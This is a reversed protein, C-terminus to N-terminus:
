GPLPEWGARAARRALTRNVALPVLPSLLLWSKFWDLGAGAAALAGLILCAAGGLDAAACARERRVALLLAHYFVGTTIGTAAFGTALVFPAAALYRPGVLPGILLPMAAHVAAAACLALGTYAFAVWDVEALLARRREPTLVGGAFWQPQFYQLLAMGLMTPLIAGVNTALVFYGTTESGFRGAVIWRNAGAVVWGAIALAMFLPGEYVSTLAPAAPGAPPCSWWRRLNWAGLLTGALAQLLFGGLLASLGAGSAAYILPPAFSRTVSIGASIGLDRWHERAAQLVSQALQAWTLLLASGFLVAGYLLTPRGHAAVVAVAAAALLWPSRRLTARVIERLLAARDPSEQWHRSVFKILGAYIVTSGVTALSTFVGYRGYDVPAVLESTLRVGAVGCALGIGQALFIPVLRQRLDDQSVKM